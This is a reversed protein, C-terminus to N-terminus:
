ARINLVVQIEFNIHLDIENTTINLVDAVSHDSTKFALWYKDSEQLVFTEVLSLCFNKLPARWGSFPRTEKWYLM